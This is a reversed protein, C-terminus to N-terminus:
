DNSVMDWFRKNVVESIVPDPEVLNNQFDESFDKLLKLKEQESVEISEFKYYDFSNSISETLAQPIAANKDLISYDVGDSIGLFGTFENDCISHVCGEWELENGMM